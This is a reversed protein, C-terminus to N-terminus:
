LKGFRHAGTFHAINLNEFFHRSNREHVIYVVLAVLVGFKMWNWHRGKGVRYVFFYQASFISEFNLWNRSELAHNKENLLSWQNKKFHNSSLFLIWKMTNNM